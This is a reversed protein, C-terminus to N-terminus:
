ETQAKKLAALQDHHTALLSVIQISKMAPGDKLKQSFEITKSARGIVTLAKQHMEVLAAKSGAIRLGISEQAQAWKARQDADMKGVEGGVQALTEIIATGLERSMGLEAAWQATVGVVNGFNEPPLNVRLSGLDPTYDTSRPNYNLGAEDYAAKTSADPPPTVPTGDRRTARDFAEVDLGLRVWEARMAAVQTDSFPPRHLEPGFDSEKPGFSRPGDPVEGRMVRLANEENFRQEPTLNGVRDPSILDPM